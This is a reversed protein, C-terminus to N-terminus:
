HYWWMNAPRAERNQMYRHTDTIIVDLPVDYTETPIRQVRGLEFCVGIKRAQLQTALFKDYYGGGYGIRQLNTDFGLMPVIVADFRLAESANHGQWSVVSWVGQIQRSTCLQIDPYQTQLDAMFANINVENLKAIPEFCHLARVRSYDIEELRLCIQRSLIQHNTDSLSHRLQKLHSRLEAKDM